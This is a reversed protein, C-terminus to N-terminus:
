EVMTLLYMILIGAIMSALQILMQPSHFFLQPNSPPHVCNDPFSSICYSVFWCNKRKRTAKLADDYTLRYIPQKLKLPADLIGDDYKRLLLWTQTYKTVVDLLGKAQDSSLEPSSKVREILALAAELEKTGTEQLRKHHITYGEILHKRLVNTAWIRFQTGRKSNVRYGVSIIMDLNYFKTKYTKGDSATHELISSVSNESLEACEFINRLHKTIAPRQVDFLLAMREQTLWVTEDRVFVEFKVAGNATTYLLFEKGNSPQIPTM